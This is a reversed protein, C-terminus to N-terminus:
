CSSHQSPTWFGCVFNVKLDQVRVEGHSPWSSDPRNEEIVLLPESPISTYQQIREVSIIQNEMNGMNFIVNSLLKNLNLGYTVALGAIGSLSFFVLNM